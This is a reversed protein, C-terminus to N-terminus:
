DSKKDKIKIKERIAYVEKLIDETPRISIPQTNRRHYESFPIFNSKDM